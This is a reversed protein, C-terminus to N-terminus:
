ARTHPVVRESVLRPIAERIAAGCNDRTAVVSVWLDDASLWRQAALHAQESTVARVREVFGSYYDAPLDLLVMELKQLARKRATDIEFPYSRELFSKALALEDDEVGDALFCELMDLQLALCAGADGADPATWMTFTDRLRAMTVASSAGYSWGRKARVEQMLRSTFTGGFATNAVWLATHDEERPHCGLSGLVMQTQTREPKDVIVLHRGSHAVPDASPYPTAAGEPLCELVTDHLQQAETLTVDGCVTVVVNARCFHRAHFAVLEQRTVAELGVRVGSPDRAHPHEGLLHHRLARGALFSDDDRALEIESVTQACERRLQADDFRPKGCLLAVLEVASGVSRKLVDVSLSTSGLGVSASLEAGMADVRAEIQEASLEGAGRRLMRGALQALGARGPPDHVAGARFTVSFSVLPLAQSPEAILM